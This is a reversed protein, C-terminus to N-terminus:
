HDVSVTFNDLKFKTLETDIDTNEDNFRHFLQLKKGEGQACTGSITENAELTLTFDYEGSQDNCTLCQNDYWMKASWTITVQTNNENKFTLLIRDEDFGNKMSCEANSATVTVGNEVQIISDNYQASIFESIFFSLLLLIIRM